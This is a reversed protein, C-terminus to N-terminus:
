FDPNNMFEVSVAAAVVFIGHNLFSAMFMSLIKDDTITLNSVDGIGKM